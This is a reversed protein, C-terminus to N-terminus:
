GSSVKKSTLIDTYDKVRYDQRARGRILVQTILLKAAQNLCGSLPCVCRMGGSVAHSRCGEARPVDTLVAAEVSSM